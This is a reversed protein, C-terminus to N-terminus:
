TNAAIFSCTTIAELKRGLIWSRFTPADLETVDGTSSLACLITVESHEDRNVPILRSSTSSYTSVELGRRMDTVPLPSLVGISNCEPLILLGAYLFAFMALVCSIDLGNIM